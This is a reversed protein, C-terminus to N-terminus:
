RINFSKFISKRLLEYILVNLLLLLMGYFVDEIPITFIRIGLNYNNDYWVVQDKIFSGTLIGNTIVFPILLILYARYFKTINILYMALLVVVSLSIFTISTYWKELYICGLVFLILSFIITYKKANKHEKIPRLCELVHYSFVCAYPICFFFLIEEIPLSFLRVGTIYASNFGWYGNDTFYIDWVVFVFGVLLTSCFFSPYEKYFKLRPHFSYIFPILIVLFNIVLYTLNM